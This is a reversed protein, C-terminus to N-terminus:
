IDINIVITGDLFTLLEFELFQGESQEPQLQLHTNTMLQHYLILLRWHFHHQYVRHYTNEGLYQTDRLASSHQARLQIGTLIHQVINEPRDPLITTSRHEVQRQFRTCRNRSRSISQAADVNNHRPRRPKM